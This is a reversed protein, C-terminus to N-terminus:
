KSLKELPRIQCADQDVNPLPRDKFYEYRGEYGNKVVYVGDDGREIRFPIEKSQKINNPSVTM